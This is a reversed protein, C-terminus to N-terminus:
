HEEGTVANRLHNLRDSGAMARPEDLAALALLLADVVILEGLMTSTRGTPGFPAPLVAAVRGGYRAGLGDTVLVVDAGTANAHDLTADFERMGRAPAFLTVVDGSRLPLLEDALQFGTATARRARRGIRNLKLALYGAAFGSPGIGYTVIEPARALLKLADGFASQKLMRRSEEVLEIAEDAVQDIVTEPAADLHEVRQHLIASPRSRLALSAGISRKLEPLGSYGLAKATRVVTADSTGTLGGITEGSAFVMEDLHDLMYRAVKREAPALKDSLRTVREPFLDQRADGGPNSSLPM